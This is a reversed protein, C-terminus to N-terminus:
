GGSPIAGSLQPTQDTADADPNSLQQVQVELAHYKNNLNAVQYALNGLEASESSSCSAATSADSVTSTNSVPADRRAMAPPGWMIVAVTFCGLILNKM